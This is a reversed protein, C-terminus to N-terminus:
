PNSIATAKTRSLEAIADLPSPPVFIEAGIRSTIALATHQPQHTVVLAPVPQVLAPPAGIQRAFYLAAEAYTLDDSASIQTIGAVRGLGVAVAARVAFSLSVPAMVANRFPTIPEHRSLASLWGCFLRNDPGLVKTFRLMAVAAKDTLMAEELRAKQRGYVCRPSIPADATPRPRTGDFVLNTSFCVVFTGAATLRHTLEVIADVNIRATAAPEQECRLTSTESVCIFALDSARPLTWLSAPQALDLFSQGPKAAPRRTTTTVDCRRETLARALAAGLTSDGGVILVRSSQAM